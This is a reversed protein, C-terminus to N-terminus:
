GFKAALEEMRQQMYDPLPWNDIKAADAALIWPHRADRLKQISEEGILIPAYLEDTSDAKAIVDNGTQSVGLLFADMRKKDEVAIDLSLRGKPLYLFHSPMAESPNWWVAPIPLADERRNDPHEHRRSVPLDVIEGFQTVLIIHDEKDWFGSWGYETSGEFLNAYCVDVLFPDAEIEFQKLLMKVGLAAELTREAFTNGFEKRLALDTVAFLLRRAILPTLRAAKAEPVLSKLFEESIM